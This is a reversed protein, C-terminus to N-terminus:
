RTNKEFFFQREYQLGPDDRLPVPETPPEGPQM